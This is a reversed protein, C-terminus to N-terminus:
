RHLNTVDAASGRCNGGGVTGSIANRPREFTPLDLTILERNPSFIALVLEVGPLVRVM